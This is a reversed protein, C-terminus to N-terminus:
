YMAYIAERIDKEKLTNVKAVPPIPKGDAQVQFMIDDLLNSDLLEVLIDKYLSILRDVDNAHCTFADHTSSVWEGLRVVLERVIYGDVSHVINPAMARSEDDRKYVKKAIANFEVDVGAITRVASVEVDARVWYNVVFGDPLNWAYAERGLKNLTQIASMAKMASPALEMMILNFADKLEVPSTMGENLEDELEKIKTEVLEDDKDLKYISCVLQVDQSTSGYLTTMLAKKCNSRNFITTTYFENLKEAIMTYADQRVNGTALNCLMATEKCSLLVAFLQLAQNSADVHISASVKEGRQHAYLSAVASRYSTPEEAGKHFDLLNYFNENVWKIQNHKLMKDTSIGSKTDVGAYTTCIEVMLWDLGSQTLYDEKIYKPSLMSQEKRTNTM